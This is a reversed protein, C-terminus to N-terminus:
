GEVSVARFADFWRPGVVYGVWATTGDNKRDVYMKCVKGGGCRERLEKASRAWVHAGYQDIFLTAKDQTLRNRM